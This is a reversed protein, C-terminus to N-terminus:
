CADSYRGRVSRVPPIRAQTIDRAREKSREEDPGARKVEESRASILLDHRRVQRQVALQDIQASRKLDHAPEPQEGFM